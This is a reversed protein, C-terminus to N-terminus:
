IIVQILLLVLIGFRRILEMVLLMIILMEM